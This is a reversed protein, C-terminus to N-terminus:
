YNLNTGSLEGMAICTVLPYPLIVADNEDNYYKRKKNINVWSRELEMLIINYKMSVMKSCKPLWEMFGIAMEM